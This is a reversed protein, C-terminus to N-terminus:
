TERHQGDRERGRGGHEQDLRRGARADVRDRDGDACAQEPSEDQKPQRADDVCEFLQAPGFPERACLCLGGLAQQRLLVLSQALGVAELVFEDRQDRM